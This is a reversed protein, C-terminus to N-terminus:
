RESKGVEGVERHWSVRRQSRQQLRLVGRVGVAVIVGAAAAFAISGGHYNATAVWRRRQQRLRCGGNGHRGTVMAVVWHQRRGYDAAMAAM